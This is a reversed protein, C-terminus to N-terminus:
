KFRDRILNNLSTNIIKGAEINQHKGIHIGSFVTSRVGFTVNRKIDCGGEVISATSFFCNDGIKTNIGVMVGPNLITNNGIEVGHSIICGASLVVGKGLKVSTDVVAHLSIVNVPILGAQIAKYYADERLANDKIASVFGVIADKKLESLLSHDGLFSIDKYIKKGVLGEEEKKTGLFGVLQFNRNQTLIDAVITACTGAGIIVVKM